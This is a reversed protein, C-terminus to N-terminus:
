PNLSNLCSETFQTAGTSGTLTGLRGDAYGGIACSLGRQGNPTGTSNPSNELGSGTDAGLNVGSHQVRIGHQTNGEITNAAIDAQSMKVVSIGHEGNNAIRNGNIRAVSGRSVVVGIGGNNQIVNQLPQPPEDLSGGIRAKSDEIQIGNRPNNQIVNDSIHVWSERNAGIGNRGTQEITNSLIFVETSWKAQIGDRGGIIRFGKVTVGRVATMRLTDQTADPGSITATGMGDLTVGDFKGTEGNIEINELCTGNVYLTDGPSLTRLASSLTRGSNCNVFRTEAVARSPLLTAFAALLYAIKCFFAIRTKM